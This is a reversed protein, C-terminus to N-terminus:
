RRPNRDFVYYDDFDPATAIDSGVEFGIIQYGDHVGFNSRYELSTIKLVCDCNPIISKKLFEALYPQIDESTGAPWGAASRVSPPRPSRGTSTPM